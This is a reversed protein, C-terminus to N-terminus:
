PRDNNTGDRQMTWGLDAAVKLSRRLVQKRVINGPASAERGLDPDLMASAMAELIEEPVATESHDTM